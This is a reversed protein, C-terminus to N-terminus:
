NVYAKRAPALSPMEPLEPGPDESMGAAARGAASAAAILRRGDASPEEESTYEYGNYGTVFAPLLVASLRHIDPVSFEDTLGSGLLLGEVVRSPGNFSHLQHRDFDTLALFTAGAAHAAEDAVGPALTSGSSAAFRALAAAAANAAFLSVGLTGAEWAPAYFPANAGGRAIHAGAEIAASVADEEGILDLREVLGAREIEDITEDVTSVTEAIDDHLGDGPGVLAGSADRATWPVGLAEQEALVAAAVAGAKSHLALIPLLNVGDFRRLAEATAADFADGAAAAAFQDGDRLARALEALRAATREFADALARETESLVAQAVPAGASPAPKRRHSM